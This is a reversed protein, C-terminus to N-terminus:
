SQQTYAFEFNVSAELLQSDARPFVLPAHKPFIFRFNMDGLVVGRANLADAVSGLRSRIEDHDSGRAVVQFEGRYLENAYQHRYIPMQSTVLLGRSIGDPMAYAFLDVGTTGFGQSQLHNALVILDM